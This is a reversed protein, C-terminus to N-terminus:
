IRRTGRGSYAVIRTVRACPIVSRGSRTLRPLDGRHVADGVCSELAEIGPQRMRWDASDGGRSFYRMHCADGSM